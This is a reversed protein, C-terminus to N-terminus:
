TDPRYKNKTINPSSAYQHDTEKLFFMALRNKCFIYDEYADNGSMSLISMRVLLHQIPLFHRQFLESTLNPLAKPM